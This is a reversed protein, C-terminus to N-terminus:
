SYARVIGGREEIEMLAARSDQLERFAEGNGDGNNDPHVIVARAHYAKKIAEPTPLGQARSYVGGFLVKYVVQMQLLSINAVPNRIITHTRIYAYDFLM